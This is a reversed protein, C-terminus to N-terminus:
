STLTYCHVILPDHQCFSFRLLRETEQRVGKKVHGKGRHGAHKQFSRRAFLHESCDKDKQCRSHTLDNLLLDAPQPKKRKKMHRDCTNEAESSRISARNEYEEPDEDHKERHAAMGAPDAMYM